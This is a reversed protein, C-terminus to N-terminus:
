NINKEIENIVFDTTLYKECFAKHSKCNLLYCPYCELEKNKQIIINNSYYSAETPLFGAHILFTKKNFCSAIHSFLGEYSVLFKSKSILYAVARFDLDLYYEVNKLLPEYTTGIQIWHFNHFHNVISQMGDFSWEKNSTFTKKSTSQILAFNEGFSFKKDFKEVEKNTFFIENKIKYNDIEYPFHESHAKALHIKKNTHYFLFHKDSDHVIRESCFELISKGKLVRLFFWFYSNLSLNFSKTIKPNNIFFENYSTFIIINKKKRLNIQNIIGTLM